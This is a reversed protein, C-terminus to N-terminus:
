QNLCQNMFWREKVPRRTNQKKNVDSSRVKDESQTTEAEGPIPEELNGEVVGHTEMGAKKKSLIIEGPVPIKVCSPTGFSPHDPQYAPWSPDKAPTDYDSQELPCELEFGSVHDEYLPLEDSDKWDDFSLDEEVGDQEGKKSRYVLLGEGGPELGSKTRAERM